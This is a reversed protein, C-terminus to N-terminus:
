AVVFNLLLREVQEKQSRSPYDAELVVVEVVALVPEVMDSVKEVAALQRFMHVVRAVM